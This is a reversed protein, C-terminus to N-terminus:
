GGRGGVDGPDSSNRDLEDSFWIQYIVYLIIVGLISGAFIAEFM